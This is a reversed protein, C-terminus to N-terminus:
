PRGVIFSRMSSGWEDEYRLYYLGAPWDRVSIPKNLEQIEFQEQYLLQGIINYITLEFDRSEPLDISVWVDAWAPNPYLNWDIHAQPLVISVPFDVFISGEGMCGNADIVTVTYTDNTLNEIIPGTGGNSWQYTFPPNGGFVNVFATGTNTTTPTMGLQLTLMGSESIFVSTANSCNNADTVILTYVGPGLNDRDETTEGDTWNYTFPATGGVLTVEISGDAAGACSVNVQFVEILPGTNESTVNIQDVLTCNNDDTITVSYNGTLLGDITPTIAGNSWLFQYPSNGGNPIVGAAGFGAACLNDVGFINSVIASPEVIQISEVDTCGAFPDSVSVTYSGPPLGTNSPGVIGNSWVYFYDANPSDVQVSGDSLGNCSVDMGILSTTLEGIAIIDASAFTLCGNADTLTVEYLNPLLDQISADTEGNSWQYTYPMTGQSPIATIAGGSVGCIADVSQLSVQLELPNDLTASQITTCANNDTVTLSYTADCLGDIMMTTSNDSWLYTYPPTGGSPMAELAGDCVDFCAIPTETISLLLPSPETLLGSAIQSCGFADVVTVMYAGASLGTAMPTVQSNPDDWLYTYPSTGGSATVTLSGDSDGACPLTGDPLFPQLTNTVTVNFSCQTTQGNVDVLTWTVTTTGEPYQDSADNSGNYDNTLSQIGCLATVGPSQISIIGTCNTTFVNMPCMIQPVSDDVVTVTATCTATSGLNDTVTLVVQNDGVNSCDFNTQDIMLNQIGATASSGGDVDTASINVMGAADLPVTIDQCVALPVNPNVVTVTAACQDSNGSPDTVTLLVTNDGVDNIDFGTIDISPLVTGCNDTSGGNVEAATITAMGNMDLNVTIDQCVAVPAENDQITVTASCVSTSGGIDTVTLTVANEGISTCDFSSMNITANVIACNDMSGGDVDMATITATGNMDLNVTIDQCIAQPNIDDVITVIATCTATMDANDTVTLTVPNDGVHSCDFNTQDISLNQIGAVATSGGDVEAAAITAQGNIDLSVIIDQCVAMPANDNTVTVTAICFEMNGSADELTLTVLNDGLDNIDFSSVDIDSLVIGCNDSSGGDIDTATITAMGNMDLSVTIDQCVANPDTVDFISVTAVCTATSGSADTVTLTVPNDGIHSCNFNSLDVSSAVLSCNDSSGGDIDSADLTVQGNGGLNLSIDQCIATPPLDDIVQVSVPLNDFNGNFDQVTLVVTLVGVNTCNFFTQSLNQVAIGCNDSASVIVDAPSLTAFGTADLPLVLPQVVVAPPTNDLVTVAAICTSTNGGIDTVTLTVSNTGIDLCDFSNQDITLSQLGDPAISGGDVDSAMITAVGMEDLDITIDQCIATPPTNGNNTITVTATCTEENGADDTLTLMVPNDGVDNIDFNSIDIESLVIGCNDTSGGDIDAASITALGNMDLNVTIDQCVANPDTVDRVTVTAMCVSTNGGVDTVTLTVSNDGIDTCDFTSVDIMSSTISCNDTSGGDIDSANISIGGNGLNVTINQCIATPPLDDIVTVNTLCSSALGGVDTVTLTVNNDGLDTCDFSSVDTMSSAISCNDISGGDIDSASLNFQGNADLSVTLDQCVATPPLDDIVTVNALCSSALGGVDTVTLTIAQDGLDMCDFAAVDITSSAISCNDTSGGDIDSASLNFQGNADLSVTLDQCVAMPPTDDIVTVTALCSSALGGIDTVTLTVMQDGLDTCDFTSVDITSSAIGCIDSSGGDVDSASLMFQGNIDLRVTLDQCVATPPETDQVLITITDPDFNCFPNTINWTLQLTGASTNFVTINPDTSSPFLSASGNIITWNGTEGSGPFNAALDIIEGPCITPMNATLIEPETVLPTGAFEYAGLDLGADQIRPQGLLDIDVSEDTDSDGDLDILDLLPFTSGGLDIAPSCPTLQLDGSVLDLFQPDADLNTGSDFGVGGPVGNQIINLTFSTNDLEGAFSNLGTNDANNWFINNFWQEDAVGSPFDNWAVGGDLGAVNGVFTNNYFFANLTGDNGAFTTTAGVAGGNRVAQNNYFVCNFIHHNRIAGQSGRIFLAGGDGDNVFSTGDALNGEFYCNALTDNSLTSFSTRAFLAGGQGGSTNNLFTSNKIVVETLGDSVQRYWVAGGRDTSQNNTFTCSDIVTGLFTTFGSPTMSIAAGDNGVFNNNFTCGKILPTIQAGSNGFILIGGGTSSVNGTSARNNEFTCNLLEMEITGGIVADVAMGGGGGAFNNRITCNRIKLNGIGSPNADIYMGGGSFFTGNISSGDANGEEVIFGDFITKDNTNEATVVRYSNDTSDIATGIDGSLITFNTSFDRQDLTTETADFGGYAEVGSRLNFSTLRDTTSCPNCSVPLYTGEAVWVQDGSQAADLGDQFSTFANAWSRGNNTGVADIDVYIVGIEYAGLDVTGNYIRVDGDPDPDMIPLVDNNNGADILPSCALLRLDGQGPDTFQPDLDTNNGNDTVGTPVGGSINSFAMDVTANLNNIENGAVAASDLNFISNRISMADTGESGDLSIAGGDGDTNNNYFTCNSLFTTNTGPNGSFTSITGIAGGRTTAFNNDFVCNLVQTTRDANQSGRLFLAGGEGDNVTSTGTSQNNRFTCNVITDTAVVDFSARAFIAGGQGGAINNEFTCDKIVVKMEASSVARYWVAGGRDTSENNEFHCNEIRPTLLTGFGSPTMSIAAGDNGVFNNTFTCDHIWPNIQAASSGLMLIAGGTSSVNGTSARNNDFTCNFFEAEVTGGLVADIAVGGGGGAFNNRITTNYIKANATGSPNADLYLGGGSFFTGNISSGDANGEEIIIGDIRTDVTSNELVLVRFSNDTSDIATGIDGSLISFNTTFDRQNLSSETGDFGGYLAVDPPLNFSLLRDATLCPSCSVPLYTGEAVWIQDGAVAVSLASQLDTYANAWSSGNNSGGADQDVYIQASLPSFLAVALFLLLMKKSTAPKM